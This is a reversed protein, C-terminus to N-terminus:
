SASVDRRAVALRAFWVVGSIDARIRRSVCMLVGYAALAALGGLLIRIVSTAGSAATVAGWSAFAAATAGVLIRVIGFYLQRVPVPTWQNVFAYTICLGVAPAAAFGVAVGVIGWQSGIVVCVVRISLSLLSYGFLRGSLGRAVFVWMSVFGITQLAAAVALASFVPAAEHWQSGLTLDIIPDAAGAAFAAAAVITYGLAAQGRLLMRNAQESGAETRVLIPLAVTLTPNRFQNVSQMVLQYARSYVGLMDPAFRVAITWTDVNNQGYGVVQTGFMGIGFRLFPRVDGRRNPWEPIWGAFAATLALTVALASLQQVALAWYGLGVIAGVIAAASGVALGVVDAIVMARFRMARNLDARYQGIAGSLLFTLSMVRALDATAEDGSVQALLPALCFGIGCMVAGIGINIWMLNSQQSRSLTAAQIAATSLGFDRFAEGLAVVSLVLAFLGYDNPTLLRALIVVSVFQMVFRSAQGFM